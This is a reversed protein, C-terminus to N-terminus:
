GRLCTDGARVFDLAEALRQIQSCLDILYTLLSFLCYVLCLQLGLAAACYIHVCGSYLQKSQAVRLGFQVRAPLVEEVATRLSDSDRM